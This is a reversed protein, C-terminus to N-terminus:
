VVRVEISTMFRWESWHRVLSLFPSFCHWLFVFVQDNFEFKLLKLLLYSRTQYGSTTSAGSAALRSTGSTCGDIRLADTLPSSNEDVNSKALQM